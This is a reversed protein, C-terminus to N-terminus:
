LWIDLSKDEDWASTIALHRPSAPRLIKGLSFFKVRNKPKARKALIYIFCCFVHGSEGFFRGSVGWWRAIQYKSPYVGLALM